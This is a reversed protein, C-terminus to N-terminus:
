ETMAKNRPYAQVVHTLEHVVMGFDDKHKGVYEANISITGGGTAAPVKMEKKFVLKVAERPVFGDTALYAGIKPYWEECIGKAKEGWERLEPAETCDVTFTAAAPQRAASTLGLVFVGSAALIFRVM